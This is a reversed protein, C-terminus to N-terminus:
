PKFLRDGFNPASAAVRRWWGVDCRRVGVGARAALVRGSGGGGAGVAFMLFGTSAELEVGDSGAWAREGVAAVRGVVDHRAGRASRSARFLGLGVRVGRAVGADLM